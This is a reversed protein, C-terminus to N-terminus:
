QARARRYKADSRKLTGEGRGRGREREKEKTGERESLSILNAGGRYNAAV